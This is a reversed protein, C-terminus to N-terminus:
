ADPDELKVADWWSHGYLTKVGWQEAADLSDFPGTFELGNLVNGYVVIWKPM